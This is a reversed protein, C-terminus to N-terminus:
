QSLLNLLEIRNSAGVKQFLNYIHTRVTAESIGLKAAIEKNTLSQSILRAMEQERNTLSFCALAQVSLEGFASGSKPEKALAQASAIIITSNIGLYLLYELSLPQYSFDLITALLYELLGLPVFGVCCVGLGKLLTKYAKSDSESHSTLLVSGFLAMTAAVSLYIAAQYFINQVISLWGILLALLQFSLLTICLYCGIKSYFYLKEGKSNIQLADLSGIIGFYLGINLLVATFSFLTDVQPKGILSLVQVMYFYVAVLALNAIFLAQVLILRRPFKNALRLSLVGLGALSAFGTSFILIYILLILHKM